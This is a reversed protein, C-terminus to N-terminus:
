QLSNCSSVFFSGQALDSDLITLYQINQAWDVTFPWVLTFCLTSTQNMPKMTPPEFLKPFCSASQILFSSVFYTSARDAPAAHLAINQSVGPKSLLLYQLKQIVYLAGVFCQFVFLFFLSSSVFVSAPLFRCLCKRSVSQSCLCLCCLCWFM